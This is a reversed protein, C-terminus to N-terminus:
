AAGEKPKAKAAKDEEEQTINRAISAKTMRLRVKDDVQVVVEDEKESVSIVTGYIGAITLVKSGKKLSAQLTNRQQADRRGAPRLVLLYFLVFLMMFLPLNKMLPSIEPTEQGGKNQPDAQQQQAKPAEAKPAQDDAPLASTAVLILAYMM